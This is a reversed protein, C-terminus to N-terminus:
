LIFEYISFLIVNFENDRKQSDKIYTYKPKATHAIFPLLSFPISVIFVLQTKMKSSIAIHKTELPNDKNM